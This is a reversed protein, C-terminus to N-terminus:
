RTGGCEALETLTEDRLAAAFRSDPVLAAVRDADPVTDVDLLTELLGVDLGADALRSRQVAGTDDQSMPVGRLLAGDPERLYLSWFGGDEAPGFWADRDPDDFVPSLDAASAQPTDMGVLLTPGSMADFMAGLREDLGGGVQPLVEFDDTGDPLVVGDYLLVRRSAPLARVTAITDALSAAAVRAAGEPTLAPTLRTKVKGPLCEKSVVVVTVDTM